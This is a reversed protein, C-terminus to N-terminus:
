FEIAIKEAFWDEIEKKLHIKSALEKQMDELKKKYGANARELRMVENQVSASNGYMRDAPKGLAVQKKLVDIENTVDNIQESYNVVKAKSDVSQELMKELRNIVTEQRKIALTFQEEKEKEHELM